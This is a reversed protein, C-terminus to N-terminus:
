KSTILQNVENGIYIGSLLIGPSQCFKRSNSSAAAVGQRKELVDPISSSPMVLCTRKGGILGGIQTSIHYLARLYHGLLPHLIELCRRHNDSTSRGLHLDCIRRERAIRQCLLDFPESM